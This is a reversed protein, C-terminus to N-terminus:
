AAVGAFVFVALPPDRAVAREQDARAGTVFGLLHSNLTTVAATLAFDDFRPRADALTTLGLTTTVGPSAQTITLLSFIQTSYRCALSRHSAVKLFPASAM